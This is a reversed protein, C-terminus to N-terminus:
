AAETQHRRVNEVRGSEQSRRMVGMVEAMMILAQLVARRVEQGQVESRDIESQALYARYQAETQAFHAEWTIRVVQDLAKVLAASSYAEGFIYNGTAPYVQLTANVADFFPAAARAFAARDERSLPQYPGVEDRVAKVFLALKDDLAARDGAKIELEERLRRLKEATKEVPHKHFEETEVKGEREAPAAPREHFQDRPASAPRAEPAAAHRRRGSSSTPRGAPEAAAHVLNTKM